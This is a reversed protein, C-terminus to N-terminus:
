INTFIVYFYNAYVDDPKSKNKDDLGIYYKNNYEVISDKDYTIYNWAKVKKNNNNNLNNLDFQKWAGSLKAQFYFEPSKKYYVFGFLYISCNLWAVFGYICIAYINLFPSYKMSFYVPIFVAYYCIELSLYIVKKCCRIMEKPANEYKKVLDLKFIPIQLVCLYFLTLLSYVSYNLALDWFIYLFNIVVVVSM